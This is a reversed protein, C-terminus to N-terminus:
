VDRVGRAPGWRPERGPHSTAIATAAEWALGLRRTGVGDVGTKSGQRWRRLTAEGGSSVTPSRVRESLGFSPVAISLSVSSTM